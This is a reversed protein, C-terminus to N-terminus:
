PRSGIAVSLRLFKTLSTSTRLSPFVTNKAVWLISFTPSKALRTPIIFSPRRRLTPVRFSTSVASPAEDSSSTKRLNGLDEHALRRLEKWDKRTLEPFRRASRYEAVDLALRKVENPVVPLPLPYVPRLFSDVESSCDAIFSAIPTSDATGDNNDDFIARVVDVGVRAELESQTFYAAM